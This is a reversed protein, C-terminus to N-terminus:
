IIAFLIAGLAAGGLVYTWPICVYAEIKACEYLGLGLGAAAGLTAGLWVPTSARFSSPSITEPTAAHTRMHLSDAVAPVVPAFSLRTFPASKQLSVTVTDTAERHAQALLPTSSSAIGLLLLAMPLLMCCRERHHILRPCFIM